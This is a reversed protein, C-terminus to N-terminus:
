RQFRHRYVTDVQVTAGVASRRIYTVALSDAQTFTPRSRLYNELERRARSHADNRKTSAVRSALSNEFSQWRLAQYKGDAGAVELCAFDIKDSWVGAKYQSVLLHPASVIRAEQFFPGLVVFRRYFSLVRNTKSVEPWAILLLAMAIHLVLMLCALTGLIGAFKRLGNSM